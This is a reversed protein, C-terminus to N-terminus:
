MNFCLSVKCRDHIMFPVSSSRFGARGGRGRGRPRGRGRVDRRSLSSGGSLPFCVYVPYMRGHVVATLVRYIKVPARSVLRCKNPLLKLDISLKFLLRM